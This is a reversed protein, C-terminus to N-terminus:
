GEESTQPPDPAQPPDPGQRPDPSQPSDPEESAEPVQAAEAARPAPAVQQGEAAQSAEAAPREEPGGERGVASRQGDGRMTSRTPAVLQGEPGGGDGGDAMEGYGKPVLNVLVECPAHQLVYDITRGFVREAIRRKRAVGLIIVESRRTAAEECIARGAQRATMVIPTMKVGFQDAIVTARELVQQAAERERVLRADLPLNMPVEIVYLADIASNRETALQCALVMMEDSVQSGVIPVLLQDYVIDQQVYAPLPPAKVTQTLSFGKARRYVVYTIIGGAMWTLGVTRGDAHTLVVIIWVSFTGIAGIIATLPVATGRIRINLPARFPRALEPAKFRLRIVSVHAATFSLMAGFAYLNALLTTSGPLILVSAIVGFTIIAIYPTLREVHVRGLVPPIQRHQALSYTLRSVGIIGANTAIVLITAALIGIWPKLIAKLWSLESPMHAVIGQVPDELYVSGLLTGYVNTVPRGNLEYVKGTPTMPAISTQTAGPSEVPLYVRQGPDSRFVYEGKPLRPGQIVAVAQTKGTAPDYPLVNYHVPMASLAVLSMGLYVVLVVALVMNISRPVDRDPNAAEESMNSITEIGTYAITGISIGYVFQRITPATWLHIQDLLLRPAFLLIVGIVMILVQTVLDLVALVINLRAAEKIGIVNIIVLGAIVIIGGVTNYPWFKLVPWFAALYNPVFFASIAITIIYDLMLAWGAGFSWFENFAHRTFSSSGGAEPLMATAEAYSWATTAFLLGTMLFVLPTLGLASLAVVGLAYYISSGVNGYATSFLAPVGLVRHLSQGERKKRRAM